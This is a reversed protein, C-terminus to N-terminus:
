KWLRNHCMRSPSQSVGLLCLLIKFRLPRLPIAFSAFFLPHGM